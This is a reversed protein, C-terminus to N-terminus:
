EITGYGPNQPALNPNKDLEKTPVPLLARYSQWHKEPIAGLVADARGTRVLDWWRHAEEAFFERRREKEVELLIEAQTLSNPLDANVGGRARKRILNLDAIADALKSGGQQARAEARILYQEALRLSVFDEAAGASTAATRRYKYPHWFGSVITTWQTKRLDDAEFANLFDDTLRLYTNNVTLQAYYVRDIYTTWSGSSSTKFIAEKGSRLFVNELDELIYGSNVIVSDAKNEAKEWENNYLYTRALLASAAWTTVKINTNASNKLATEVDKLDQKIHEVIETKATRPYHTTELIRTSTVWPVDGFLTTLLFYSYARFYKAEGIYEQKKEESLVTADPLREILDNAILIAKYPYEWFIATYTNTQGYTNYRLDDYSTSTHYADDAIVTLYFPTAYYFVQNALLNQTYLGNVAAEITRADGYIQEPTVIDSPPDVDLLDCSSFALLIVAAQLCSVILFQRIISLNFLIRK